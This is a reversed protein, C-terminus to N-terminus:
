CLCSPLVSPLYDLMDDDQSSFITQNYGTTAHWTADCWRVYIVDCLPSWKKEELLHAISQSHFIQLVTDCTYIVEENAYWVEQVYMM